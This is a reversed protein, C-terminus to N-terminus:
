LYRLLTKAPIKVSDYIPLDCQLPFHHHLVPLDTCGLIVGDIEEPYDRILKELILADEILIKGKLIHDIVKEVIQQEPFFLTVGEMQYLASHCTKETGLLLLRSGPKIEGLVLQPISFFQVAGQGIKALELHLTNCVLVARQMGKEELTQICNSLACQLQQQSQSREFPYNLLVIEPLPLQSRYIEHVLTEYFLASALPGAGGIIGLKKM